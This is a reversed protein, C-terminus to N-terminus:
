KLAKKLTNFTLYFYTNKSFANPIQSNEVIDSMKYKLGARTYPLATGVAIPVMETAEVLGSQRFVRFSISNGFRHM